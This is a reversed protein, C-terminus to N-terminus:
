LPPLNSDDNALLTRYKSEESGHRQVVHYIPVSCETLALFWQSRPNFLPVYNIGSYFGSVM